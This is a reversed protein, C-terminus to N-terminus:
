RDNSGFRIIRGSSTSVIGTRSNIGTITGYGSVHDGTRVTLTAHSRAQELWARGPVVARVHYVPPRPAIRQVQYIVKPAPAATISQTVNGVSSTLSTIQDTMQNISTQLQQMSTQLQQIQMQNQQVQQKLTDESPVATLSSVPAQAITPQATEVPTTAPLISPQTATVHNIEEKTEPGKGVFQYVVFVAIMLVIITIVRRNMIRRVWSRKLPAEIPEYEHESSRYEQEPRDEDSHFPDKEDAM